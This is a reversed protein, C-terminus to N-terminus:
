AVSSTCDLETRKLWDVVNAEVVADGVGLEVKTVEARGLEVEAGEVGLKMLEADEVTAEGGVLM